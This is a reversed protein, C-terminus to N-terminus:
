DPTDVIEAHQWVFQETAKLVVTADL